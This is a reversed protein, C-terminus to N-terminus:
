ICSMCIEISIANIYITIKGNDTDTCKATCKLWTGFVNIVLFTFTYM